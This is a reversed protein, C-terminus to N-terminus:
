SNEGEQGTEERRGEHNELNESEQNEAAWRGGVFWQPRWVDCRAAGVFIRLAWARLVRLTVVLDATDAVNWKDVRIITFTRIGLTTRTRWGADLVRMGTMPRQTALTILPLGVTGSRSVQPQHRVSRVAM